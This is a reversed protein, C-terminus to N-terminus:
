TRSHARRDSVIRITIGAASVIVGAGALLVVDVGAGNLRSDCDMPTIGAAPQFASGCDTGAASVSRFGFMVGTLILVVGILGLIRTLVVPGQVLRGQSPMSFGDVRM